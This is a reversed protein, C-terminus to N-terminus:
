HSRENSHLHIADCFRDVNRRDADRKGAEHNTHFYVAYAHVLLLLADSHLDCSEGAVVKAAEAAFHGDLWADVLDNRGVMADHLFLYLLDYLVPRPAGANDWDIVWAEGNCVFVNMAHLDGHSPLLPLQEGLRAFREAHADIYQVIPSGAAVTRLTAVAACTTTPDAPLLASAAFRAYQELLDRVGSARVEPSSLALPQGPLYADVRWTGDNEDVTRRDPVRFFRSWADLARTERDLKGKFISRTWIVKNELDFLKWNGGNTLYAITCHGETDRAGTALYTFWPPALREVLQRVSRRNRLGPEADHLSGPLEADRHRAYPGEVYWLGPRCHAMEDQLRQRVLRKRQIIGVVTKLDERLAPVTGPTSPETKRPM